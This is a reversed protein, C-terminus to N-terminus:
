NTKNRGKRPVSFGRWLSRAELAEVFAMQLQKFNNAANATPEVSRLDVGNVVRAFQSVTHVRKNPTVTLPERTQRREDLGESPSSGLVKLKCSQREAM